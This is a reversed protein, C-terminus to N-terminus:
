CVVGGGQSCMGSHLCYAWIHSVLVMQQYFWTVAGDGRGQSVLKRRSVNFALFLATIKFINCLGLCFHLTWDWKQEWSCSRIFSCMCLYLLFEELVVCTVCLYFLFSSWQILHVDDNNCCPNTCYTLATHPFRREIASSDGSTSKCHAFNGLLKLSDCSFSKFWKKNRSSWTKLFYCEFNCVLVPFKAVGYFTEIMVM